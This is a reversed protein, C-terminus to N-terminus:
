KKTKKQKYYLCPVGSVQKVLASPIKKTKFGHAKCGRPFDKDWTIYFHQCNFCNEHM